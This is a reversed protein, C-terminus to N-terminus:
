SSNNAEGPRDRGGANSSASSDSPVAVSQALKEERELTRSTTPTTPYEIRRHLTGVLVPLFSRETLDLDRLTLDCEDFQGDELREKILQHVLGQVRSPTRDRLSRVAAEVADAMMLIAAEKTQPKPGPYRFVEERVNEAGYMTQAKHYFYTMLMTGHHQPIFDIAQQPLGMREAIEVGDKVHAAVILASMQPSLKEHPNRIYLQNEVFHDARQMKGLDHYYAGVRALLPNAGIAEAGREVLNAIIISHTYTGPARLALERLLPSNLDSLELLTLNTTINFSKECVVLLGAALIPVAVGHVAGPWMNQWATALATGQTADVAAITAIIGLPLVLMSRLFQNRNRIDKVALAAIVAAVANVLVIRFEFGLITGALLIGGGSLALGVHTDFLITGLMATLALPVIYIPIAANVAAFSAATLPLWVLLVCLVLWSPTSWLKPHFGRFYFGVMLVVALAILVRGTWQLVSQWEYAERQRQRQAELLSALEDMDASTLLAHSEVFREDKFITRKYLAVNAAAQTQRSITEGRDYTLNPEIASEILNHLARLAEPTLHIGTSIATRTIMQSLEDRIRVVNNLGEFPLLYDTTDEAIVSVQDIPPAAAGLKEHRRRFYDELQAADDASLVGEHYLDQLVPAGIRRALTINERGSARLWQVTQQFLRGRALLVSEAVVRLSEPEGELFAVLREQEERGVHSDERVLPSVISRALAREQELEVENKRVNFSFPAIVERPAVMGERWSSFETTRERPFLWAIMVVAVSAIIFRILRRHSKDFQEMSPRRRRVKSGDPKVLRLLREWM